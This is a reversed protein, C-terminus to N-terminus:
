PWFNWFTQLYRPSKGPIDKISIRNNQWLTQVLFAVFDILGGVVGITTKVGIFDLLIQALFDARNTLEWLINVDDLHLCVQM